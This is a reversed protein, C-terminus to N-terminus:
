PSSVFHDPRTISYRARSNPQEMYDDLETITPTLGGIGTCEATAIFYDLDGTQSTVYERGNHVDTVYESATAYLFNEYICCVSAIIHSIKIASSLM